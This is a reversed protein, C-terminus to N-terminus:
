SCPASATAAARKLAAWVGHLVAAPTVNQGVAAALAASQELLDLGARPDLVAGGFVPRGAAADRGEVALAHLLDHLAARLAERKLEGPGALSEGERAAGRAAAV